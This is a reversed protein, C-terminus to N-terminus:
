GGIGCGGLVEFLRDMDQAFISELVIELYRRHQYHPIAVTLLPRESGLPQNSALLHKM